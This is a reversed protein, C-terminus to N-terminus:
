RIPGSSEGISTGNARNVVVKEAGQYDLGADRVVIPKPTLGRSKDLRDLGAYVAAKLRMFQEAEELERREERPEKLGVSPTNERLSQHSNQVALAIVKHSGGISRGAPAEWTRHSGDAGPSVVRPTLVIMFSLAWACYITKHVM